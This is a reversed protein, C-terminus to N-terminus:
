AQSSELWRKLQRTAQESEAQIRRRVLLADLLALALNPLPYTFNRIFETAGGRPTLNYSVVGSGGGGTTIVGDIIWRRPAERERVTWVVEGRRGAVLFRETVQEGVLLSHDTAGSVGLSSPHWDPWHGPTTVYDFVREVPCQITASTIIQTMAREEGASLRM